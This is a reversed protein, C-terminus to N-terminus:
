RGTNGTSTVMDNCFWIGTPVAPYGLGTHKEEYTNTCDNKQRVWLNLHRVSKSLIHRQHNKSSIIFLLQGLKSGSSMLLISKYVQSAHRYLNYYKLHVLFSLGKWSYRVKLIFQFLCTQIYTKM